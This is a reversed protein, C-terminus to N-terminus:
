NEFSWENKIENFKEVWFTLNEKPRQMSIRM